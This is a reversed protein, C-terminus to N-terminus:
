YNWPDDEAVRLIENVEKDTVVPTTDELAHAMDGTLQTRKECMEQTIKELLTKHPIGRM